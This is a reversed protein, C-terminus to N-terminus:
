PKRLLFLLPFPKPTPSRSYYCALPQLLPFVKKDFVFSSSGACLPGNLRIPPFFFFLPACPLRPRSSVFLFPQCLWAGFLLPMPLLFFDNRSHFRGLVWLFSASSSYIPSPFFALDLPTPHPPLLSVGKPPSLVFKGNM